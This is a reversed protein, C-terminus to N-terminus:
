PKWAFPKGNSLNLEFWQTQIKSVFSPIEEFWTRQVQSEFGPILRVLDAETARIESVVSKLEIVELLIRPSYWDELKQESPSESRLKVDLHKLCETYWEYRRNYEKTQVDLKNKLEAPSITSTARTTLAAEGREM